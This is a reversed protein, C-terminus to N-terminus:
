LINSKSLLSMISQLKAKQEELEQQLNHILELDNDNHVSRGDNIITQQETINQININNNEINVGGLLPIQSCIWRKIYDDDTGWQKYDEENMDLKYLTLGTPLFCYCQIFAKKGLLVSIELVQVRINNCTFFEIFM